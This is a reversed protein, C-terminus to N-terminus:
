NYSPHRWKVWNRLQNTTLEKKTEFFIKKKVNVLLMKLGLHYDDIYKKQEQDTLEYESWFTEYTPTHNVHDPLFSRIIYCRKKCSYSVYLSWNCGCDNLPVKRIGKSRSPRKNAFHCVFKARSYPFRDLDIDTGKNIACDIRLCETFSSECYMKLDQDFQEYSNYMKGIFFTSIEGDHRTEFTDDQKSSSSQEGDEQNESEVDCSDNIDAEFIDNIKIDLDEEKEEEEENSYVHVHEESEDKEYNKDGDEDDVECEELRIMVRKPDEKHYHPGGRRKRTKHTIEVSTQKTAISTSKAAESLDQVVQSLSKEHETAM